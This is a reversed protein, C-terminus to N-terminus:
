SRHDPQSITKPELTVNNALITVTIEHPMDDAQVSVTIAREALYCGFAQGDITLEGTTANIHVHEALRM